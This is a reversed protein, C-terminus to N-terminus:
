SGNNDHGDMAGSESKTLYQKGAQPLGLIHDNMVHGSPPPVRNLCYVLPMQIPSAFRTHCSDAVMVIDPFIALDIPASRPVSFSYVDVVFDMAVIRLTYAHTEFAIEVGFFHALFLQLSGDHEEAHKAQSVAVNLDAAVFVEVFFGAAWAFVKRHFRQTLSYFGLLLLKDVQM